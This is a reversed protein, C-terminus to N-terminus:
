AVSETPSNAAASNALGPIVPAPDAVASFDPTSIDPPSGGSASICQAIAERADRAAAAVAAVIQRLEFEPADPAAAELRRGLTGLFMAGVALSASALKHANAALAQRDGGAANEEVGTLLDAAAELYGALWERVEAEDDAFLERYTAPDFV